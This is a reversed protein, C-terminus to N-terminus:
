VARVKAGHAADALDDARPAVADPQPLRPLTHPRQEAPASQRWSPAALRKAEHSRILGLLYPFAVMEHLVLFALSRRRTAESRFRHYTRVVQMPSLRRLASATREGRYTDHRGALVPSFRGYRYCTELLQGFRARHEHHVVARPETILCLGAQLMRISLDVDEGAAHFGLDFGNVAELATRRFAAAGTILWRVEGAVVRHDILGDAHTYDSILSKKQLAVFHAGVGDAHALAETLLRIVDPDPLTDDDFFVILEGRAERWGRDRAGVTGRDAQWLHRVHERACVEATHDSSGDDVVVIEIGGKPIESQRVAALLRSLSAANNFTPIVISV